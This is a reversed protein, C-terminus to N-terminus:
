GDAPNDAALMALIQAHLAPAAAVISRTELGIPEGQLDTIVGGAEEVIVSLAAVDLINVESEIVGDLSGEALRHYHYFDGYGRSRGCAALVRGLRHWHPGAALQRINGTSVTAQALAVDDRVKLPRGNLWAGAGRAAWALEDMAPACSVGLMLRGQQQLAVQTSFFGTGAVYSKTGDIPDVLWLGDHDQGHRGTEEGYFGFDPADRALRARIIDEAARDAATVPSADAKYEVALDRRYDQMARDAGARAAAIATNILSTAPAAGSM